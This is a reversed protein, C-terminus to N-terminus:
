PPAASVRPQFQKVGNPNNFSRKKAISKIKQPYSIIPYNIEYVENNDSIYQQLEKPIHNICHNKFGVMDPNIESKGSLMKRWNTKDKVYPKLAVEILGALQRYPTKAFKIAYEAGQDIWRTPIQTHRTVGVKLDSTFALYVYHDILDNKKSWEMDKSVGLHAQNLEPRIVSEDAQPVSTFCRYCYGQFFSKNTKKGCNICNIEKLFQISITKNLWKNIHIKQDEIEMYYDIPNNYTSIMKILNGEINM